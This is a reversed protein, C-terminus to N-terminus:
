SMDMGEAVQSYVPGVVACISREFPSPHLQATRRRKLGCSDSPSSDADFKRRAGTVAQQEAPTLPFIHRSVRCLSNNNDYLIKQNCNKDCIHTAGTMKCRFMNGCVNENVCKWDCKHYDVPGDRGLISSLFIVNAQGTPVSNGFVEM